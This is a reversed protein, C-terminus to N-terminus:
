YNQRQPWDVLVTVIILAFKIVLEQCTITGNNCGSSVDDNYDDDDGDGFIMEMM